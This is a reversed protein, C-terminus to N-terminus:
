EIEITVYPRTRIKIHAIKNFRESTLTGLVNMQSDCVQWAPNFEVRILGPNIKYNASYEKLFTNYDVILSDMNRKTCHGSYSYRFLFKNKSNQDFIMVFASCDEDILYSRETYPTDSKETNPVGCSIIIVLLIIRLM